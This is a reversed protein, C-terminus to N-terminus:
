FSGGSIAIGTQSRESVDVGITFKHGDLHELERRFGVLAEVLSITQNMILDNGRREWKADYAQRILFKLDGPEGDVIPEGEEFFSIEQGNTM